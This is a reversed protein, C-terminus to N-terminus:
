RERGVWCFVKEVISDGVAIKWEDYWVVIRCLRLNEALKATFDKDKSSHSIFVRGAM